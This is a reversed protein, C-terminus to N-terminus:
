GKQIVIGPQHAAAPVDQTYAILAYMDMGVDYREYWRGDIAEPNHAPTENGPIPAMDVDNLMARIKPTLLGMAFRHAYDFAHPGYIVADVRICIHMDHRARLGTLTNTYSTNVVGSAPKPIETLRLYCRDDSPEADFKVSEGDPWDYRIVDEAETSNLDFLYALADFITDMAQGMYDNVTPNM